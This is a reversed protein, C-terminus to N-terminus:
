QSSTIRLQFGADLTASLAPCLRVKATNAATVVCSLAGELGTVMVNGGDSPGIGLSCPDGKLVETTTIAPSDQCGADYPFLYDVTYVKSRALKDQTRPTAGLFIGAPFGWIGPQKTIPVFAAAVSAVLVLGLVFLLARKM